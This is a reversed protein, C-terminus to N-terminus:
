YDVSGRDRASEEGPIERPANHILSSNFRPHHYIDRRDGHSHDHRHHHLYNSDISGHRSQCPSISSINSREGYSVRRSGFSWKSFMRQYKLNQHNFPRHLHAYKDPEEDNKKSSKIRFGATLTRIFRSQTKLDHDDSATCTTTVTGHTEADGSSGSHKRAGFRWRGKNAMNVQEVDIWFNSQQRQASCRLM